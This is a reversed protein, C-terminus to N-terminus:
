TNFKGGLMEVMSLSTGLLGVIKERKLPPSLLRFTPTGITALAIMIGDSGCCVDCFVSDNVVNYM